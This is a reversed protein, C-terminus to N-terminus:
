ARIEEVLKNAIKTGLERGKELEDSPTTTTAAHRRAPASWPPLDASTAAFDYVLIRDPRALRDQQYTQRGTVETSACGVLAVLAFCYATIGHSKM